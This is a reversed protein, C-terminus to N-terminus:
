EVQEDPKEATEEKQPPDGHWAHRLRGLLRNLPNSRGLFPLIPQARIGLEQHLRLLEPHQRIVRLGDLVARVAAPRDGALLYTRALNVYNEPEYFQVKVSHQCLKLGEQVRRQRLAIGYGLYSYFLGPLASSREAEAIRGLFALGVEWDGQRCREIGRRLVDSFDPQAVHM